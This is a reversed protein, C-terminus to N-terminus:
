KLKRWTPSDLHVLPLQLSATWSGLALLRSRASGKSQPGEPAQTTSPGGEVHLPREELDDGRFAGATPVARVPKM